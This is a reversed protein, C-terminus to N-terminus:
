YKIIKEIPTYSEEKNYRNKNISSIIMSNIDEFTIASFTGTKKAVNRLNMAVYEYDSVNDSKGARKRFPVDTNKVDRCIESIKCELVLSTIGLYMNNIEFNKIYSKVIDGYGVGSPIKGSNILNIFMETNDLSKIVNKSNVVIDNMYYKFVRYKEKKLGKVLAIEKTEISFPTTDMMSPFNFTKLTEGSLDKEKSSTRFNFWGFVRIVSGYEEAYGREFYFEPIYAEMYGLKLRLKEGDAYFFNSM